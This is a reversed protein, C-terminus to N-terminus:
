TLHIHSYTETHRHSQVVFDLSSKLDHSLFTQMFPTLTKSEVEVYIESIETQHNRLDVEIDRSANTGLRVSYNRTPMFHSFM